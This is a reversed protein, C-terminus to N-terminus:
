SDLLNQFITKSENSLEQIYDEVEKNNVLNYEDSKKILNVVLAKYEREYANKTQDLWEKIFITKVTNQHTDFITDLEIKLNENMNINTKPKRFQPM